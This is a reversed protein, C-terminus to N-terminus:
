WHLSQWYPCSSSAVIFCCKSIFCLIDPIASLHVFQPLSKPWFFLNSDWMSIPPFSTLGKTHWSVPQGFAYLDLHLKSLWMLVTCGLGSWSGIVNVQSYQAFFRPELCASSVWLFCFCRFFTLLIFIPYLKFWVWNIPDSESIYQLQNNYGFWM